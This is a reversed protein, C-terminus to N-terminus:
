LYSLKDVLEDEKVLMEEVVAELNSESTCIETLRELKDEDKARAKLLEYEFELKIIAEREITVVTSGERHLRANESELGELEEQM